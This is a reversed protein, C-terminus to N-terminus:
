HSNQQPAGGGFGRRRRHQQERRRSPTMPSRSAPPLTATASRAFVTAVAGREDGKIRVEAVDGASMLGATVSTVSAPPIEHLSHRCVDAGLDHPREHAHGRGVYTRAARTSRRACFSSARPACSKPTTAVSRSIATIQPQKLSLCFSTTGEGTPAYM